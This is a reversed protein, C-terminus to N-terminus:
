PTHPPLVGCMSFPWWLACPLTPGGPPPASHSPWTLDQFLSNLLGAQARAPLTLHGGGTNIDQQSHFTSEAMAPDSHEPRPISPHGRLAEKGSPWTLLLPGSPTPGRPMSRQQM